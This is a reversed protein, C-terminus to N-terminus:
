GSLHHYKACVGHSVLTATDDSIRYSLVITEFCTEKCFLEIATNFKMIIM